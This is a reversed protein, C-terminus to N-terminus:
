GQCQALVPSCDQVPVPPAQELWGPARASRVPVQV